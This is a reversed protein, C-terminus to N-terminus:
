RLNYFEVLAVGTTNNKGRVVATYAGPPLVAFIAPERDDSPALGHNSIEQEKGERWNDNSDLLTGQQNRLELVPDQMANQVGASSLSPGKARTIVVSIGGNGGGIIAGGILVNAGLDVFGRASVNGLRSNSGQGLDYVELLAVGTTGGAGRVIATYAGPELTAVIASELDNKPPIGTAAVQNQQTDKWNNNTAILAGTHDHLELTPDALAGPVGLPALSPGIARVIVKKSDAGNIIFGGILVNAGTGTHLRSSVNLLQAFPKIDQARASHITPLTIVILAQLITIKITFRSRHM